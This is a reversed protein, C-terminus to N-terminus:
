RGDLFREVAAAFEAPHGDPLPLTGGQIEAVHAHPLAECVAPLSPYAHPDATAGVLLVPCRILPLRRVVDYRAVVRHGEAALKGARLADVLFRELLDPRAAPYFPQRLRWLELVHTGDDRRDVDDVVARGTAHANRTDEDQLGLSSLVVARVREPRAAALEAAVYAGTHHGVVDAHELGLADLLAACAEAWAEISPEALPQSDGFGPLDLALARRRRGLLPLVDRYEDWSRPTQHLLLVPDGSGREAVHLVGAATRLFRREVVVAVVASAVLATYIRSTACSRLM